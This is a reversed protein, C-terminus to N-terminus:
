HLTMLDNRTFRAQRPGGVLEANTRRVNVVALSRRLEGAFDDRLVLHERPDGLLDAYSQAMTERFIDKFEEVTLDAIRPQNM